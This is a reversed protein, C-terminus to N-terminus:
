KYGMRKLAKKALNTDGGAADVAVTYLDEYIESDKMDSTIIDGAHREIADMVDDLSTEKYRKKSENVPMVTVSDSDISPVDSRKIEDALKDAEDYSLPKKNMKVYKGNRKVTVNYKKSNAERIYRKM